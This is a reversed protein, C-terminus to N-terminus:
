SILNEPNKVQSQFATFVSIKIGHQSCLFFEIFGGPMKETVM